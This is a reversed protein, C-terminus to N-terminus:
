RLCSPMFGGALAGRRNGGRSGQLRPGNRGGCRTDVGRTHNRTAFAKHRHLQHQAAQFTEVALIAPIKLQVWESRPRRQRTTRTLNQRKGWAAVGIYGEYTLVNHVTTASWVGPTWRRKRKIPRRDLPTEMSDQTLQRAIARVPMGDLCMAFIRRVM